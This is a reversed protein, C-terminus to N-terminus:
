GPWLRLSGVVKGIIQEKPVVAHVLVAAPLSRNDGLVAYSGEILRGPRIELMGPLTRYSSEALLQDNVYVRGNRANVMEGPLGVVRKVILEGRFRVIVLDGRLPASEKYARTSVMLLEGSRLTPAMSDGKVVIVRFQTRLGAFLLTILALIWPIRSRARRPPTDAGPSAIGPAQETGANM